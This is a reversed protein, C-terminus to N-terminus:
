RGKWTPTRKESFAAMGERQDESAFLLYFDRREFELGAELPLEDARLIARKAAITAVPPMGAIVAALGLAQNLTEAAPVVRSVLGAGYAEQADITRGTLIVDMALAKGIARTLRQTGGAGPMVGLKIEPQGFKADDGAVIIDCAMALECGGGLAFGRVAAVIPKRIARIRDWHTFPDDRALDTPNQVALEKIDAGAAFAREGDGTLVIARCDPLQDLAEFADAIEGVVGFSLANLVDPRVITVLAVGDRGAAPLDVRVHASSAPHTLTPSTPETDVPEDTM